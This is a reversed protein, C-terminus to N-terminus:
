GNCIHFDGLSFSANPTAVHYCPVKGCYSAWLTFTSPPGILFDCNKMWEQDVYWANHSIEVHAACAAFADPDIGENSFVIFKVEGKLLETMRQIIHRYTNDDYYYRGDAFGRYDGRRIHVGVTTCDKTWKMSQKRPILRYRRSYYRRLKETAAHDRFDGGSVFIMRRKNMGIIRLLDKSNLVEVIRTYKLRKLVKIVIKLLVAFVYNYRIGFYLPALDLM